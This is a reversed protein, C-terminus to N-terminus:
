SVSRFRGGAIHGKGAGGPKEGCRQVGPLCYRRLMEGAPTDRGVRPLFENEEKSLM